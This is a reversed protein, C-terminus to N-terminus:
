RDTSSLLSLECVKPDKKKSLELHMLTAQRMQRASALWQLARKGQSLRLSKPWRSERTRRTWAATIQAQNSALAKSPAVTTAIRALDLCATVERVVLASWSHDKGRATWAQPTARVAVNCSTLTMLPQVGSRPPISIKICRLIKTRHSNSTRTSTAEHQNTWTSSKTLRCM